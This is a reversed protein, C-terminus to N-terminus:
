NIKKNQSIKAGFHFLFLAVSYLPNKKHFFHALTVSNQPFRKESMAM